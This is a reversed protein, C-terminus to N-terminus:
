QFNEREWFLFKKWTDLKGQFHCLKGEMWKKWEGALNESKGGRKPYYCCCSFSGSCYIHSRWVAFYCHLCKGLVRQTHTHESAVTVKYMIATSSASFFCQVTCTTYEISWQIIAMRVWDVTHTHPTNHLRSLRWIPNISRSLPSYSEVRSPFFSKCYLPKQRSISVQFFATSFIPCM